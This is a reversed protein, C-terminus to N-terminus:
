ALIEVSRWTWWDERQGVKGGIAWLNGTRRRMILEHSQRAEATRPGTSWGETAPNFVQVTRVSVVDEDDLPPVAGGVVYIRGDSGVQAASRFLPTPMAGPARWTTTSPNCALVRPNALGAPTCCGGFVYIHGDGARAAAFSSRASPMVARKRWANSSPTYEWLDTTAGDREYAITYLARSNQPAWLRGVAISHCSCLSARQPQARSCSM